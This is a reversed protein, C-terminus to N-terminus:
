FLDIMLKKYIKEDVELLSKKGDKFQVAIVLVGNTASTRHSDMVQYGDVTSKNLKVNKVFGIAIVVGALTNVVPKKLYDGAIVINKAM